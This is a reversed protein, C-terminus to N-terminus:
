AAAMSALWTAALIALGVAQLLWGAELSRPGSQWSMAVGLAIVATAVIGAALALASLTPISGLTAWAFALVSAMLAVLTWRAGRPGLQTALSPRGARVDTGADVLSNGLYIAPGALAAVPLLSPWGPPLSGASAAWAWTLLLPFAAAYCLWGLGVRRMAVDYAVGSAYGMAGLVLVAPGFSASLILGVSAGLIAIVVTSTVGILGAPIPKRPKWLRDTDVDAIDNVAGISFQFGLMALALLTATLLSGGAIIALTAVSAANIASPVPHVVALALLVREIRPTQRLFIM